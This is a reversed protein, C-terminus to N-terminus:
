MLWLQSPTLTLLTDLSNIIMKVSHDQGGLLFLDFYLSM